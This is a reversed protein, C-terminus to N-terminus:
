PFYKPILIDFFIKAPFNNNFVDGRILNNWVPKENSILPIFNKYEDYEYIEGLQEQLFKSLRTPKGRQLINKLFCIAQFFDPKNTTTKLNQFVFNNNSYSYNATKEILNKM